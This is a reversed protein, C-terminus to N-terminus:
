RAEPRFVHEGAVPGILQGELPEGLYAALSPEVEKPFPVGEEVGVYVLSMAPTTNFVGKIKALWLNLHIKLKGIGAVNTALDGHENLLGLIQTNYDTLINATYSRITEHIQKEAPTMDPYYKAFFREYELNDQVGLRQRLGRYLEDRLRAQAVFTTRTTALLDRLKRAVARSDDQRKEADSSRGPFAPESIPKGRDRRVGHLLAKRADDPDRGVLDIYVITSLLGLPQCPGVRVPILTHDRGTPDARFAAAWEPQTFVAALYDASLVAITRECETMARQMDLVFNGGPRFDWDQIM